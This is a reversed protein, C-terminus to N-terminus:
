KSLCDKHKLIDAGGIDTTVRYLPLGYKEVKDVCRSEKWCTGEVNEALTGREVNESPSPSSFDTPPHSIHM